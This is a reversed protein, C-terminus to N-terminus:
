LRVSDSRQLRILDYAYPTGVTVVLISEWFMKFLYIDISSFFITRQVAHKPLWANLTVRDTKSM